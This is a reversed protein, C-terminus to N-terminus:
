LGSIKNYRRYQVDLLSNNCVLEWFARFLLDGPCFYMMGKFFKNKDVATEVPDTEILKQNNTASPLSSAFKIQDSHVEESLDTTCKYFNLIEGLSLSSQQKANATGILPLRVPLEVSRFLPFKVTFIKIVNELM